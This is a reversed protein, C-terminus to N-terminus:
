PFLEDFRARLDNAVRAVDSPLRSSVWRSIGFHKLHFRDEVVLHALAVSSDLYIM